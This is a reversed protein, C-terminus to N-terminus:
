GAEIHCPVWCVTDQHLALAAATHIHCLLLQKLMLPEHRQRPPAAAVQQGGFAVPVAALLIAHVAGVGEGFGSALLHLQKKNLTSNSFMYKTNCSQAYCLQVLWM